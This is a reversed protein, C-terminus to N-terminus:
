ASRAAMTVRCRPFNACGWFRSGDKGSTRNVLKVGCSACTPRWYEGEYAVDLLERQQEESRRRILNLLGAGDLVSIGNEKAFDTAAPTFTSSTVFTGRPVGKAKMVGFFERLEKVGVPKGLWHKCQVVSAPGQANRSHLWIDVGGDAGHSLSSTEFGAQAFLRNCLAEFRRWEIDKFVQQGWGQQRAPAVSAVMTPADAQVGVDRRQGPAPGIEPPFMDKSGPHVNHPGNVGGDTRGETRRRAIVFHIALLAIGIAIAVGGPIKLAQAVPRLMPANGFFKPAVLFSCGVLLAVLGKEVLPNGAKRKPRRAM